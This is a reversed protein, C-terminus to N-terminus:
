RLIRFEGSHSLAPTIEIPAYESGPRGEGGRGKELLHEWEGDLIVEMKSGVAVQGM